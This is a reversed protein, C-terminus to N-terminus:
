TDPNTSYIEDPTLDLRAFRRPGATLLAERWLRYDTLANGSSPHRLWSAVGPAISPDRMLGGGSADGLLERGTARILELDCRLDATKRRVIDGPVTDVTRQPLARLPAGVHAAYWWGGFLGVAHRRPSVFVTDPGIANHTIQAWELYCALNCLSSVMWAVHEAPVTGGLYTALDRLLVMDDPKRLVLACHEPGELSAEIAPLSPSVEKRMEESAFRLGRMAGLGAAHLDAADPNVLFAAITQGILLEGLEFRRRALHRIRYQRGDHATLLREGCSPRWEGSAIQEKAAAYLGQIHQFVLTAASSRNRDPHWHSALRRYAQHVEAEGGAFLLEPQSHPIGLIAAASKM